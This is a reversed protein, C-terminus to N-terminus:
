GEEHLQDAMEEIDDDTLASRVLLRGGIVAPSFVTDAGARRLKDINVRSTAAAVIRADPNLERATLISLADEADNNTAVIISRARGIAVDRLPQEDSQNGVHVNIGRERLRRAEEADEIVVVYDTGDLEELLPETLEGYGLVVVHDEFLDYDTEKMTGLARAFRAEIAPGLVSGLAVAFSATGLIVLSITFLTAEETQPTIDGYGVTSATVITYYFADTISDVEGFDERLAFSGVTGYALTGGLALVAAIQTNSFTVPRDFRSYNVAVVPLALVSFVVLPFSYPSAQIVGQIATVPLLIVTGYWGVRLRRRLQWASLLLFFGTLTGTFGATQQVVDPIFPSLPGVAVGTTINALGTALSLVAAFTALIVAARAGILRRRRRSKEEPMDIDM